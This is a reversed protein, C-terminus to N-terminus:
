SIYVYIKWKNLLVNCFKVFIIFVDDVLYICKMYNFMLSCEVIIKKERIKIFM